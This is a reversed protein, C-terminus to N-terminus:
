LSMPLVARHTLDNYIALEKRLDFFLRESDNPRAITIEPIEIKDLEWNRIIQEMKLTQIREKLKEAPTLGNLSGHPRKNNYYAIWDRFRENFHALSDTPARHYFYQADIRHNREVKGNLEKEGPPITQHNIGHRKCWLDMPHDDRGLVLKYSFEFGNDSLIAHIPFPCEKRLRDLFDITMFPNVEPYGRAFKWRTCEDIANYVYVRPNREIALRPGYKVDIQLRQGPIELEYRRRHTLRKQRRTRTIKKRGNLVHCITKKSVPMGERKMFYSIMEGGCSRRQYYRIRAEYLDSIKNPSRKPRRSREELAKIDFRARKLRGFWKYFLKRSVGRRECAESVNGLKLGLLIVGVRQRVERDRCKRMQPSLLQRIRQYEKRSKSRM